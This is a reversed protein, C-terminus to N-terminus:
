LSNSRGMVGGELGGHTSRVPSVDQWQAETDRAAAPRRGGSGGEWQPAADADSSGADAATGGPPERAPCVLPIDSLSKSRTQLTFHTSPPSILLQPKSVPFEQAALLALFGTPAASSCCRCSASSLYWYELKCLLGEM